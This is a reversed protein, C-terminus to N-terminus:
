LRWGSVPFKKMYPKMVKWMKYTFANDKVPGKFCWGFVRDNFDYVVRKTKKDLYFRRQHVKPSTRGNNYIVSAYLYNNSFQISAPDLHHFGMIRTPEDKAMTPSSYTLVFIAIMSCLFARLVIKFMPLGKNIVVLKKM